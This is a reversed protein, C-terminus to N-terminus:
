MITLVGLVVCVLVKGVWTNGRGPASMDSLYYGCKLSFRPAPRYECDIQLGSDQHYGFAPLAQPDPYEGDPQGKGPTVTWRTNSRWHDEFKFAPTLDFLLKDHSPACQDESICPCHYM